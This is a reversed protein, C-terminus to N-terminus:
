ATRAERLEARLAADGRTLRAAYDRQRVAAQYAYAGGVALLALVAMVFISRKM